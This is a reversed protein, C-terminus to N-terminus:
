KLVPAPVGYREELVRVHHRVHGAMVYALARVTIAKENAVGSRSWQSEGLVRLVSLNARRVLGFDEVLQAIPEDRSRSQEVYANEEFGPLPSHDGRSFCFARFGFVREADALHGIVQRITWKSPAYAFTERDPTVAAIVVRLRDVQTELVPLIDDEPVLNVYTRFFPAYESDAPRTM